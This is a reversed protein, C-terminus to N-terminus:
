VEHEQHGAQGGAHMSVQSPADPAVGARRTRGTAWSLGAFTGIMGVAAVVGGEPGWAGGSLWDPGTDVLRYGPTGFPLGSVAVHFGASMTWNWAFHAAWAAALSGTVIRVGALFVGAAIVNAIALPSVGPNGLHLVGFVISTVGTAVPWGWAGTLVAFPYGRMLLEETLAAPALVAASFLLTRVVDGGPADVFTLYGLGILIGTPIAIALSGAIAGILLVRPRWATSGLGVAGWGTRDLSTTAYRTAVLVALCELGSRVWPMAAGPLTMAVLPVGINSAALGALVFLAIRWGTRLQYPRAYVLRDLLSTTM